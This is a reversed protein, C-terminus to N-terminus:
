NIENKNKEKHTKYYEYSGNILFDTYFLIKDIDLNGGKDEARFVYKLICSGSFGLNFYEMFYIPEHYPHPIGKKNNKTYHLPISDATLKDGPKSLELKWEECLKFVKDVTKQCRKGLFALRYIERKRNDLGHYDCFLDVDKKTLIAM